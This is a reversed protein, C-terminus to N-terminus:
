RTSPGSPARAGTIIAVWQRRLERSALWDARSLWQALGLRAGAWWRTATDSLRAGVPEKEVPANPGAQADQLKTELRTTLKRTSTASGDTPTVESVATAQITVRKLIGRKCDFEAEGEGSLTTKVRAVADKEDTVVNLGSDELTEYTQAIQLKLIAVGDTLTSPTCRYVVRSDGFAKEFTWTQGVKPPEAPFEIPLYTIDPFRKLDLGPLRVPLTRDPADTKLIRGAPTFDITTKPFFERVNEASLPLPADNFLIQADAIESSARLTGDTTPKLGSVPVKLKVEVKGEQGGLIPIFGEFRVNVDYNLRVGPEIGYIILGAVIALNQM